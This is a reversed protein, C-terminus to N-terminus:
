RPWDRPIRTESYTLLGIGGALMLGGAIAASRWHILSPFRGGRALLIPLM